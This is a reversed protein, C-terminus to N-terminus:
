MHRKISEKIINRIKHENVFFPEYGDVIAKSYLHRKMGDNPPRGGIGVWTGDNANVLGSKAFLYKLDDIDGVRVTSMERGLESDFQPILRTVEQHFSEQMAMIKRFEDMLPSDFFHQRHPYKNQMKGDEHRKYLANKYDSFKQHVRLIAASLYWSQKESMPAVSPIIQAAILMMQNAHGSFTEVTNTSKASRILANIIKNVPDQLSLPDYPHISESSEALRARPNDDDVLGMSKLYNAIQQNVPTDPDTYSGGHGDPWGGHSTPRDLYLDKIAKGKRKKKM